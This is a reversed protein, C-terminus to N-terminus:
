VVGASNRCRSTHIARKAADAFGQRLQGERRTQRGRAVIPSVMAIGGECHPTGIRTIHFPRM